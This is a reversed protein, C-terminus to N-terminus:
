NLIKIRGDLIGHIPTFNRGRIHDIIVDRVLVGSDKAQDMRSEKFFGGIIGGAERAKETDIVLSLIVGVSLLLILYAPAKGIGLPTDVTRFMRAAAICLFVPLLYAAFGLGQLLLDALFAGVFGGWNYTDLAGSPSNLSRDDVNYSILSLGLLLADRRGELSTALVNWAPM